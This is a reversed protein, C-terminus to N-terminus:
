AFAASSVSFILLAVILEMLFLNSSSIRNRKTKSTM